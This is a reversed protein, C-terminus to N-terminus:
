KATRCCCCSQLNGSKVMSGGYWAKHGLDVVELCNMLKTDLNNVAKMIMAMAAKMVIMSKMKKKCQM